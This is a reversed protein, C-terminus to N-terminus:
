IKSEDLDIVISERKPQLKTLTVGAANFMRKSARTM